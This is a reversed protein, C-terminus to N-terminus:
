DAELIYLSIMWTNQVFTLCRDICCFVFRKWHIWFSVRFFRFVFWVVAFFFIIWFCLVFLLNLYQLVLGWVGLVGFVSSAFFVFLRVSFGVCVGCWVFFVHNLGLHGSLSAFELMCLSQNFFDSQYIEVLSEQWTSVVNFGDNIWWDMSWDWSDILWDNLRNGWFTDTLFSRNRM